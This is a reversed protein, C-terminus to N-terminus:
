ARRLATLAALGCSRCSQCAISGLDALPPSIVARCHICVVVRTSTGPTRRDDTQRQQARRDHLARGRYLANVGGDNMGQKYTPSWAAVSAM